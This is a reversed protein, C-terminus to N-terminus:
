TPANAAPGTDAARGTSAREIIRFGLDIVREKVPQGGCRQLILEAARRGMAAADVHVTTLAPELYASFEAGGFGCVALDEPVRIGRVRAETLVGEAVADSSCFVADIRPEHQLLNVLAHRGLSVTGPAPVVATPVDRGITALFGERRLAARKDDTTAIAPRQWRNALFYGAVASGVKVHSFGVVMDFPRETLDWMEVVPIAARRLRESVADGELLGTVVIGDVRRGIMANLLASERSRDYGIQGVILQYGARDLEGTLTELTPLYQPVSIGPVLAAVTFSRKSKLGGALLNPIYGVHSAAQRVRELTGQSVVDPNRLARSATILSVGAERAVDHLTAAKGGPDSRSTKVDRLTRGQQAARAKVNM